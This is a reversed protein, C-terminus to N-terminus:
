KVTKAVEMLFAKDVNGFLEFCSIGDSWIIHSNEGKQAIYGKYGNVTIEQFDNDENDVSIGISEVNGTQDYYIVKKQSRYEIETNENAESESVVEFGDPTEPRKYEFEGRVGYPDDVDFTIDLTGQKDNQNENWNVKLFYVTCAALALMLVAALIAVAAKRFTHRGIIIYKTESATDQSHSGYERLLKKMRKEFQKSFTYNYQLDEPEPVWSYEEKMAEGLIERFQLETM